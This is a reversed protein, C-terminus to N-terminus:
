RRPESLRAVPAWLLRRRQVASIFLLLMGGIAFLALSSPEPVANTSTLPDARVVATYTESTGPKQLTALFALQGSNNLAQHFSLEILIDGFLTDGEAIVRDNIPDSGTFLGLDTSPDIPNAVFAVTGGNNIGPNRLANGNNTFFQTFGDSLQAVPALTTGDHTYIGSDAPNDGVALFALVGGDNLDPNHFTQFTGSDDIVTSLTTGNWFSLSQGAVPSTIASQGSSNINAVVHGSNLLPALITDDFDGVGAVVKGVPGDAGFVGIGAGGGSIQVSAAVSGSNNIEPNAGFSLATGLGPGLASGSKGIISIVNPDTTTSGQILVPISGTQLGTAVVTGSDNLGPTKITLTRLEASTTDAIRILVGGSGALLVSVPPPSSGAPLSEVAAFAVLGNNNIAPASFAPNSGFGAYGDQSDAIKTFSYNIAAQASHLPVVLISLVLLLLKANM